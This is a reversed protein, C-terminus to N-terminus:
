TKAIELEIEEWQMELIEEWSPSGKPLAASKISAKKNRLIEAVTKGANKHV